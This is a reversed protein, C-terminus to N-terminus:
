EGKEFSKQYKNKYLDTMKQTEEAPKHAVKALVQHPMYQEPKL